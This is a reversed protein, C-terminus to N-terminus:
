KGLKYADNIAACSVGSLDRGALEPSDAAYTRAKFIQINPKGKFDHIFPSVWESCIEKEPSVEIMRGCEGECVMYNGNPLKEAGGIYLCRFSFVPDGSWHWVIKKAKRDM